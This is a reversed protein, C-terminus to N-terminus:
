HKRRYNQIKKTLFHSLWASGSGIFAGMLVDSPYHVGLHMRSYGVSSAWLFSPITVYWKPYAISFSIATSFAISTHGSPFSSSLDEEKLINQIESHRDFPRTRNITNKLALTFVTTFVLSGTMMIAKQKTLSDKQLFGVVFVTTPILLSIPRDTETLLIFSNDLTQNRGVHINKLLQIDINQSFVTQTLVFFTLYIFTFKM